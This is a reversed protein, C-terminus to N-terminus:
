SAIEGPGTRRATVEVQWAQGTRPNTTQWPDGTVEFEGYGSVTISDSTDVDVSPLLFITWFTDSLEGADGPETRREQQLWCVTDLDYTADETSDDVSPPIPNGYTDRTAEPEVDLDDVSTSSRHVTCPISLLQSLSM